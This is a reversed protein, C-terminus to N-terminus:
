QLLHPIQNVPIDKILNKAAEKCVKVSVEGFLDKYQEILKELVATENGQFIIQHKPWDIKLGSVKKAQELAVPGIITEQEQIIKEAIQAFINM